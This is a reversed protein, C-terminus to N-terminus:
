QTFGTDWHLAVSLEEKRLKSGKLGEHLNKAQIGPACVHGDATEAECHLSGQREARSHCTSARPLPALGAAPAGGRGLAPSM